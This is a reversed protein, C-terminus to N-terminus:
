WSAYSALLAVGLRWGILGGGHFIEEQSIGQQEQKRLIRAHAEHQVALAMWCRM